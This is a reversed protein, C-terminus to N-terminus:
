SKPQYNNQYELWKNDTLHNYISKAASELNPETGQHQDKQWHVNGQKRSIKYGHSKAWKSIENWTM